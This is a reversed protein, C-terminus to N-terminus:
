WSPDSWAVTTSWRRWGFRKIVVSACRATGLHVNYFHITDEGVELDVRQCCREERNAGRSITSHTSASGCAASCSTGLCIAACVDLRPWSELGMGLAAGLEEAHGSNTASSGVVEQLAIVDAKIDALVAATRLPIVRRDLGRCRHINYTVIRLDIM